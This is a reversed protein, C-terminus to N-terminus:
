EVFYGVSRVLEKLAERFHRRDITVRGNFPHLGYRYTNATLQDRRLVAIEMSAMGRGDEAGVGAVLPCRVGVFGVSAGATIRLDFAVGTRQYVFRGATGGADVKLEVAPPRRFATVRPDDIARDIAGALNAAWRELADATRAPATM